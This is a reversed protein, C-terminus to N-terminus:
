QAPRSGVIAMGSNGGAASGGQKGPYVTSSQASGLLGDDRMLQYIQVDNLGPNVRKYADVQQEFATKDQARAALVDRQLDRDMESQAERSQLEERRFGMTEEFQREQMQTAHLDKAFEIVEKREARKLGLVEALGKNADREAARREKKSAEVGPLTDAIAQGVAQLFNPSSTSAMSAGLQALASWMDSKREKEREEASGQKRYFAELDDLGSKPLGAFISEAERMAGGFTPMAANSASRAPAAEADSTGLRRAIDSQYKRTKEGWKSTDPGAFYYASAKGIDGKGYDWAERTAENTLAIQYQQAEKSKGALLDPRYPLGLRKALARATNPMIQGIGLAGSGEANAVGFRGGSEQQIIARRFAELDADGGGAFAVIGGGAYGGNYPEDFMDDPVPLDALGGMAMGMPAEEPMAMDPAPAGMPAGGQPPIAGLGAPPTATPNTPAAAAQPPMQMQPQPQPSFVQQAVTNQPAQEQMQASRMRDIFMGALVGATPDVLGMQMAEGIKQKNGGYQKAIDEPSQISFPKAM